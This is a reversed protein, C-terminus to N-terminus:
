QQKCGDAHQKPAQAQAEAAIRAKQEAIRKDEETTPGATVTTVGKPLCNGAPTHTYTYVHTHGSFNEDTKQIKANLNQIQRTLEANSTKHLDEFAKKQEQMLRQMDNLQGQLSFIQAAQQKIKESLVSQYKELAEALPKQDIRSQAVETRQGANTIAGLVEILLLDNQQGQGAQAFPVLSGTLTNTEQVLGQRAGEM